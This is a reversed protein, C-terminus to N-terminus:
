DGGAAAVVMMGRESGTEGLHAKSHIAHTRTDGVTLPLAMSDAPSGGGGASPRTRLPAATENHKRRKEEAESCFKNARELSQQRQKRICDLTSEIASKQLRL